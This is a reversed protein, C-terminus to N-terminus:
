KEQDGETTEPTTQLLRNELSRGSHFGSSIVAADMSTETAAALDCDSEQIEETKRQPKLLCNNVTKEQKQWLHHQFGASFLQSRLKECHIHSIQSKVRGCCWFSAPQMSMQAETCTAHRGHAGDEVIIVYTLTVLDAQFISAEPQELAAPQSSTDLADHLLMFSSALLSTSCESLCLGEEMDLVQVATNSHM